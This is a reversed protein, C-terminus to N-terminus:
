LYENIRDVLWDKCFDVSEQSVPGNTFESKGTIWDAYSGDAYVRIYGIGNNECADATELVRPTNYGNSTVAVVAVVPNGDKKILFHIPLAEKSVSSDFESPHVM